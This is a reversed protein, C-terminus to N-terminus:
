AGFGRAGPGGGELVSALLEGVSSAAVQEAPRSLYFEAHYSGEDEKGRTDVGMNRLERCVYEQEADDVFRRQEFTHGALKETVLGHGDLVGSIEEYSVWRLALSAVWPPPGGDVCGLLADFTRESIYGIGGTVTFLDADSVARRLAESPRDSELDETAGADLLGAKLAYSVANEAVDVGIVRPAAERERGAYYAADDEALEDGSLGGLEESSYREYLDDLTVDYKLLAANIGYSCCVDVVNAPGSSEGRRELLAGFLRQGHDPVRYDMSGLTKFYERPDQRDYIHGFSAKGSKEHV